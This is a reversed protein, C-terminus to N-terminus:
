ILSQIVPPSFPHGPSQTSFLSSPQTLPHNSPYGSSYSSPHIFPQSSSKITLQISSPNFSQIVLYIVPHSFGQNPLQISSQSLVSLVPHIVLQSPLYILLHYFLDVSPKISSCRFNIPPCTSSHIGSPLAAGAGSQNIATALILRLMWPYDRLLGHFSILPLSRQPLLFNLCLRLLLFCAMDKQNEQTLLSEVNM